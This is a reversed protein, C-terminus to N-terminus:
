AKEEKLVIKRLKKLALEEIQRVRERTIGFLRATQELTRKTKDKLGYRLELIEKERPKMRMLLEDIKERAMFESLQQDPLIATEDEILDGVQGTQDEGIPAELSTIKTAISDIQNLRDVSIKTKRAIEAHTPRRGLKYTLDETAKKYKLIAEVMYVPLRVIKGQNALARNIYQRIWWSAYTSFRFGKKPNFKVVAKMLGINGEEILDMFPIGFHRYRKAFNIVLRLNARIMKDKALRDGQKIRNALDVEEEPTLLPIKKIDKIYLKLPNSV